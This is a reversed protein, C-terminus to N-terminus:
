VAMGKPLGFDDDGWEDDSTASDRCNKMKALAAGLLGECSERLNNVEQNQPRSRLSSESILSQGAEEERKKRAAQKQKLEDM